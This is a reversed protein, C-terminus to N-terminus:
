HVLEMHQKIQLPTPPLQSSDRPLKIIANEQALRPIDDSSELVHNHKSKQKFLHQLLCLCKWKISTRTTVWFIRIDLIAVLSKANGKNEIFHIQVVTTIKKLEASSKMYLHHSPRYFVMEIFNLSNDKIFRLLYSRIQTVKKTSSSHTPLGLTPTRELVYMHIFQEIPVLDLVLHSHNLHHRKRFFLSSDLSCRKIDGLGHELMPQTYTRGKALPIGEMTHPRLVGTDM